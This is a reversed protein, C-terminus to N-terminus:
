DYYYDILLDSKEDETPNQIVTIRHANSVMKNFDELNKYRFIGEAIVEIKGYKNLEDYLADDEIDSITHEYYAQKQENNDLNWAYFIPYGSIYEIAYNM